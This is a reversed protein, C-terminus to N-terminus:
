LQTLLDLGEVQDREFTKLSIHRLYECVRQRPWREEIALRIIQRQRPRLRDIAASLEARTLVRTRGDPHVLALTAKEERRPVARLFERLVARMRAREAPAIALLAEGVPPDDRLAVSEDLDDPGEHEPAWYDSFPIAGEWRAPDTLADPPAGGAPTAATGPAEARGAVDARGSWGGPARQAPMMHGHGQDSM